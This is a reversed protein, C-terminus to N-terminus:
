TLVPTLLNSLVAPKDRVPTCHAVYQAVCKRHRTKKIRISDRQPEGHEEHPSLPSLPSKQFNLGKVCRTYSERKQVM